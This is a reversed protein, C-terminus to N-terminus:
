SLRRRRELEAYEGGALEADVLEFARAIVAAGNRDLSALELELARVLESMRRQEVLEVLERARREDVDALLRPVRNVGM